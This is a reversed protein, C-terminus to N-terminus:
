IERGFVILPQFYVVERGKFRRKYFDVGRFSDEMEKQSQPNSVGNLDYCRAGSEICIRLAEWQALLNLSLKPCGAGRREHAFLYYGTGEHIVMLLEAVSSSESHEAAILHIEIKSDKPIAGPSEPTLARIWEEGPVFVGRDRYYERTAQWFSSLGKMWPVRVARVGARQARSVESRIGSPLHGWQLSETEDLDLVLTRAEDVSHIPFACHNKLFQLQSESVRPRILISELHPHTQHLAYVVMSIQENLEQSGRIRDWALVPGNVCEAILGSRGAGHQSDEMLFVASVGRDKSFVVFPNGRVAAAADTWALSQSLPTGSSRIEQFLTREVSSLSALPKAIWAGSM